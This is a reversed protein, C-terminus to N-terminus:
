KDPDIYIFFVHFPLISVDQSEGAHLSDTYRWRRFLSRKHRYVSLAYPGSDHAADYRSRFHNPLTFKALLTKFEGGDPAKIQLVQPYSQGTHGGVSALRGFHPDFKLDLVPGEHM